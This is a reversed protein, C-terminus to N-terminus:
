NNKNWHTYAYRNERRSILAVVPLLIAFVFLFGLNGLPNEKSFIDVKINEWCALIHVVFPLLLLFRNFINQM